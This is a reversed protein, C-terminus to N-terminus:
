LMHNNITIEGINRQKVYMNNKERVTKRCFKKWHGMNDCSHCKSNYAPCSIKAHILGCNAFFKTKGIANVTVSVPKMGTLSTISAKIAEYERCKEIVKSIDYGKPYTLLKKRFEKYPTSLIISEIIVDLLRKM